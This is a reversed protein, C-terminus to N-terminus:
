CATEYTKLKMSELFQKPTIYENQGEFDRDYAIIDIGLSRATALHELDKEKIAGRLRNMEESYQEEPIIEFSSHIFSFSLSAFDKNKIEKLVHLVEYAVKRNIVGTLEKRSILKLILASNTKEFLLGRILVSSDVFVKRKPM